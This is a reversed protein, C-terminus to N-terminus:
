GVHNFVGHTLLLLVSLEQGYTRWIDISKQFEKVSLSLLLIAVFHYILMGRRRLYTAVSGQSIHIDNFQRFDSIRIYQSYHYIV